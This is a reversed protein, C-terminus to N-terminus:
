RACCGPEYRSPTGWRYGCLKRSREVGLMGIQGAARMITMSTWRLATEPKVGNKRARAQRKLMSMMKSRNFKRRMQLVDQM